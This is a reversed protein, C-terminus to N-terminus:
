KRGKPKLGYLLRMQAQAKEKTTNSSHVKGTETNKVGYGMPSKYIAFPM